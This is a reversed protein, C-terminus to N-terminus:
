ISSVTVHIKRPARDVLGGDVALVVNAALPGDGEFVALGLAVDLDGDHVVHDVLLVLVELHFQVLHRVVGGEALEGAGGDGNGVVVLEVAHHVPLQQHSVGVHVPHAHV